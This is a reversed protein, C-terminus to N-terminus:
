LPHRNQFSAMKSGRNWIVFIDPKQSCELSHAVSVQYKLCRFHGNTGGQYLYIRGLHIIRSKPKQCFVVLFSGQVPGAFRDDVPRQSSHVRDHGACKKRGPLPISRDSEIASQQGRKRRRERSLSRVLFDLKCEFPTVSCLVGWCGVMPRTRRGDSTAARKENTM